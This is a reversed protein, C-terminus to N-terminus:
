IRLGRWKPYKSVFMNQKQFTGFDDWIEIKIPSADMIRASFFFPNGLIERIMDWSFECGRDHLTRINKYAIELEELFMLFEEGDDIDDAGETIAETYVDEWMQEESEMDWKETVKSMGKFYLKSRCMPCSPESDAKM